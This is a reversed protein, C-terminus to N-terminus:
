CIRVCNKGENKARYMAKDARSVWHEVSENRQYQAVGFSCTVDTNLGFDHQAIEQRFKDAIKHASDLDTELMLFLFEEGGWRGFRDTKRSKHAILESLSVLVRDGVQHGLSDNIKKFDDIDFFLLSLTWNHRQSLEVFADLESRLKHRSLVGTLADKEAITKLVKNYSLMSLYRYLGAVLLLGVISLVIWLVIYDTTHKYEIVVWRKFISEHQEPTILSISKNLINVLHPADKAVAISFDWSDSLEDSIAIDPIKFEKLVHAINADAGVVGNIAGAQLMRLGEVTHSVPVVQMNPYRTSLIEHFASKDVVGLKMGSVRNRPNDASIAIVAPVSLYPKTFDLYETQGVTQMDGALIDCHGNRVYKLSQQWSTTPVIEYNLQVAGMVLQLYDAVMGQHRGESYFEFPYWDPNICVKLEPKQDVYNQEAQSLRYINNPPRYIFDSFDYGLFISGTILYVQAMENFKNISLAGFNGDRDFALNRLEEGEFILADLTKKQTNYKEFIVQATEDIHEFAYLWGRISARYFKDTLEPNQKIFDRSSFLIDSYMDFGYDKPHIVNYETGLLGMQYPENSIYSAMADTKGDILDQINYSHVQQNYDSGTIGAQLLMAIIEGVKKADNTIMIDRGKLDSSLLIGSDKRTLLMLPSQQYAAFLAVVDAGANKDILLSTRAVGFQSRGEVVEDVLDLGHDFEKLQVELGEDKYFGKEIAMYYGAFQFQHKWLLQLSITDKALVSHSFLFIFFGWLAIRM